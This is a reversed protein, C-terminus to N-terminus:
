KRSVFSTFLYSEKHTQTSTRTGSQIHRSWVTLFRSGAGSSTTVFRNNTKNEM